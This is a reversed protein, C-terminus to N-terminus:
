GTALHQQMLMAPGEVLEPHPVGNTAHAISRMSFKDFCARREDLLACGYYFRLGDPPRAM